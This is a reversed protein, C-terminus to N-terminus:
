DLSSNYTSRSYIGAFSPCNLIPCVVRLSGKGAPNSVGLWALVIAVSAPQTQTPLALCHREPERVGDDEVVDGCWFTWSGDQLENALEPM